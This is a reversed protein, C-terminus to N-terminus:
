VGSFYCAFSRPPSPTSSWHIKFEGGAVAQVAGPYADKLPAPVVPGDIYVYDPKCPLAAVAREMALM